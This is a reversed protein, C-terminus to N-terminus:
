KKNFEEKSIEKVEEDEMEFEERNIIEVDRSDDMMEMFERAYKVAEEFSPVRADKPVIM